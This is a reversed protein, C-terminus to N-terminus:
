PETALAETAELQQTPILEYECAVQRVKYFKEVLTAPNKLKVIPALDRDYLTCYHFHACHNGLCEMKSISVTTEHDNGTVPVPTGDMPVDLVIHHGWLDGLLTMRVTEEIVPAAVALSALLLTVTSKFLM